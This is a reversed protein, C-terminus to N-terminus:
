TCVQFGDRLHRSDDDPCPVSGDEPLNVSALVIMSNGAFEFNVVHVIACNCRRLGTQVREGPGQSASGCDHKVAHARVMTEEDNLYSPKVSHKKETGGNRGGM